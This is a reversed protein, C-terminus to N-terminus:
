NKTTPQGYFEVYYDNLVKRFEENSYKGIEWQKVIELVKELM